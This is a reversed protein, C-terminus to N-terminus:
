CENKQWRKTGMERTKTCKIGKCLEIETAGKLERRRRKISKQLRKEMETWRQKKSQLFKLFNLKVWGKFTERWLAAGM